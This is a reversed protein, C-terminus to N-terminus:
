LAAGGVIRDWVKLRRGIPTKACLIHRISWFKEKTRQWTPQLLDCSNHGLNFPIGMATLHPQAKLCVDGLMVDPKGRHRASVFLSCKQPNIHLGWRAFGERPIKYRIDFRSCDGDWVRLDDMHASQTLELDQYTSIHGVWEPDQTIDSIIWELLLSFFHPSEIAGQRIGYPPHVAHRDHPEAM